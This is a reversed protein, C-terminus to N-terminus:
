EVYEKKFTAMLPSNYELSINLASLVRMVTNLQVTEKDHEINFIVTKGVGAIEALGQQTLNARKRHFRVIQSLPYKFTM